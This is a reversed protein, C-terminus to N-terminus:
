DADEILEETGIRKGKEDFAQGNIWHCNLSGDKNFIFEETPSVILNVNVLKGNPRYYFVKAPYTDPKPNQDIAVSKLAGSNQWYFYTYKKDAKYEIGYSKAYQMAYMKISRDKLQVNYKLANQNEEYNEDYLYKRLRDRPITYEVSSFAEDRASGVDYNIRGMLVDGAHVTTCGFVLIAFALIMKKM